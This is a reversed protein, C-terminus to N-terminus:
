EELLCDCNACAGVLHLGQGSHGTCQEGFRIAYHECGNKGCVSRACQNAFCDADNNCLSSPVACKMPESTECVGSLCMGTQCTPAQCSSFDDLCAAIATADNTGGDALAVDTPCGPVVDAECAALTLILACLRTITM